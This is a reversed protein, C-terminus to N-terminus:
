ALVLEHGDIYMVDVDHRPRADLNLWKATMSDSPDLQDLDARTLGGKM